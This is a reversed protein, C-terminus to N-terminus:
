WKGPNPLPPSVGDPRVWWERNGDVVVGADRSGNELAGFLFGCADKGMGTKLHDPEVASRGPGAVGEVAVSNVRGPM